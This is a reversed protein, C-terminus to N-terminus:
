VRLQEQCMASVDDQLVPHLLVKSKTSSEGLCKGYSTIASVMLLQLYQQCKRKVALLPFFFRRITNPMRRSMERLNSRLAGHKKRNIPDFM